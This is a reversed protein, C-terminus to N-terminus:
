LPVKLAARVKATNQNHRVIWLHLPQSIMFLSPATDNIAGTSISAAHPDDFSVKLDFWSAFHSM